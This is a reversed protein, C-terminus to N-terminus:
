GLTERVAAMLALGVCGVVSAIGFLPTFGFGRSLAVGIAPGLALGLSGAMGFIGMVEARRTPPALDAAMATAATPYLGMGAGHFLRAVTLSVLGASLGYGLPALVFVLGGAIMLPRRGFHDASWGAVPRLIMSSVAF